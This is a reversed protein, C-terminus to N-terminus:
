IAVPTEVKGYHFLNNVLHFMDYTDGAPTMSAVISAWTNADLIIKKIQVGNKEFIRIVVNIGVREFTIEETARFQSM